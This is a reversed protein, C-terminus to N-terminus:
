PSGSSFWKNGAAISDAVEQNTYPVGYSTFVGVIHKHQHAGTGAQQKQVSTVFFNSM